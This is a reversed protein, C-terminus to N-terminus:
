PILRYPYPVRIHTSQLSGSLSETPQSLLSSVKQFNQQGVGVKQFGKQDQGAPIQEGGGRISRDLEPLNGGCAVANVCTTDLCDFFM